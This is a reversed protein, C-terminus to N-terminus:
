NRWGRCCSVLKRMGLCVQSRLHCFILFACTHPSWHSTLHRPPVTRLSIINVGSCVEGSLQQLLQESGTAGNQKVGSFVEGSVQQLLQESGTAGNQKVGSGVEGSLQQQLQESGTAGNQWRDTQLVFRTNSCGVFSDTEFLKGKWM